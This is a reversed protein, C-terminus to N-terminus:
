ACRAPWTRSTPSRQCAGRLRFQSRQRDLPVPLDLTRQASRRATSRFVHWFVLVNGEGDAAITAGDVGPMPSIQKVPEFSQGGNTSRSYRVRCEAGPSWRDAWVVHISGDSGVALKPGREGMTLEVKGASNVRVPPSFTGGNDLSRVYWADDGLGYVMHLVGKADVVVDPVLAKDPAPIIQM